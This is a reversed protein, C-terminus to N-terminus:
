CIHLVAKLIVHRKRIMCLIYSYTYPALGPLMIIRHLFIFNYTDARVRGSLEHGRSSTMYMRM